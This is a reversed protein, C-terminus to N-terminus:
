SKAIVTTGSGMDAPSSITPAAASTRRRPRRYHPVRCSGIAGCRASAPAPDADAPRSSLNGVDDTAAFSISEILSLIESM